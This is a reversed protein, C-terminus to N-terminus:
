EPEALAAALAEFAAARSAADVSASRLFPLWHTEFAPLEVAWRAGRGYVGAVEGYHRYGPRGSEELALRTIEGSTVFIVDHWLRDPEDAGARQFARGLAERLPRELEDVHSAEHFLLEVAQPMANGADASSFTVRGGTSYAGVPNAYMVVDVPIRRMPWEGGYAAALRTAIGEELEALVPTVAGIWARNRADHAPWWHREYMPLAGELAAALPRDADPIADRPGAGAAWDRVALLGEDFLLSRGVTAGYTEVAARWADRDEAPLEDLGADLEAIPVAFPPWQGADAAAWDLLFHHLGVSSDSRLEFRGTTVPEPAEQARAAPPSAGGAGLAAIM